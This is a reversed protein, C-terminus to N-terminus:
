DFIATKPKMLIANPTDKIYVNIYTIRTCQVIIKKEDKATIFGEKQLFSFNHVAHYLRGANMQMISLRICVPYPHASM